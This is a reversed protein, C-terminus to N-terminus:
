WQEVAKRVDNGFCTLYPGKVAVLGSSWMQPAMKDSVRWCGSNEPDKSRWAELLALVINDPLTDAFREPDPFGPESFEVLLSRLYDIEARRMAKDESSKLRHLRQPRREHAICGEIYTLPITESYHHRTLKQIKGADSIYTALHAAYGQPSVHDLSEYHSM